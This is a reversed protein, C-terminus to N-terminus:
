VSRYARFRHENDVTIVGRLFADLASCRKADWRQQRKLSELEAITVVSVVTTTNVGLTDIAMRCRKGTENGRLLHLIVNSDVLLYKM